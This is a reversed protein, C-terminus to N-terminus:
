AVFGPSQKMYVEETLNGHLFANKIDLQYLLWSRMAVMSFLLRISTMKAIPSFTDYFDSGYIQTYAKAILCARLCYVGGDSGIKVTYVWRCGIPSKDAPLTVLGWKGTSHLTDMEEVMAHKYGPHSLAEHVTKPLSVSSLTSIFASYPSSLRHYTLFNYIPNPNRSSRSGKRVAIPLDVPSLLVLTPSSSTMPSSDVPPRTDTRPRRTYVQLPRRLIAPPISSTDLVPYLLPLYIVDSSPPPTTPFM